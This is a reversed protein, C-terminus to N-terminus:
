KSHEKEEAIRKAMEVIRSTLHHVGNYKDNPSIDDAIERLVEAATWQFGIWRLQDVCSLKRAREPLDDIDPIGLRIGHLDLDKAFRYLAMQREDDTDHEWIWQKDGPDRVWVVEHWADNMFTAFDYLASPSCECLTRRLKRLAEIYRNKPLLAHPNSDWHDTISIGNLVYILGCLTNVEMDMREAFTDIGREADMEFEDASGETNFFFDLYDGFHFIRYYSLYTKELRNITYDLTEIAKQKGM